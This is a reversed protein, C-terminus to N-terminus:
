KRGTLYLEMQSRIWDDGEAVHQELPKRWNDRVDSTGTESNGCAVWYDECAQRLDGSHVRLDHHILRYAEACIGACIVRRDDPFPGGRRPSPLQSELFEILEPLCILITEVCDPIQFDWEDDSITYTPLLDELDRAAKLMKENDDVLDQKAPQRAGVLLSFRILFRVLWKPPPGRAITRGVEKCKALLAAAALAPHEPKM